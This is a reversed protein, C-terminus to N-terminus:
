RDERILKNRIQKLKYYPKPSYKKLFTKIKILVKKLKNSITTANQETCHSDLMFHNLVNNIYIVPKNYLISFIKLAREVAHGSYKDERLVISISLFWNVFDSLTQVSLSINSTAPWLKDGTKKTYEDVIKKIDIGYVKQISKNLLKGGPHKLFDKEIPWPIYNVIADPQANLVEMTKQIFDKELATDYELISIYKTTAINNKVILYWATFSVLYNYKEINDSFNRAIIVNQLDKIKSVDRRGVFIYRYVPFLNKFINEEEFKIIIDQDHVVIFVEINNEM